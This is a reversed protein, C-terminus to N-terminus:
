NQEEECEGRIHTNKTTTKKPPTRLFFKSGEFIDTLSDSSCVTCSPPSHSKLRFYIFLYTRFRYNEIM